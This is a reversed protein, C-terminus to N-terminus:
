PKNERPDHAHGAHWDEIFATLDADPQDPLAISLRVFEDGRRGGGLPAGQGKLRLKTGSSSHAPVRMEVTGTPTPVRIKGGRVAEVLSVPIDITLDGGDRTFRADPLVEMEILADGAAGTGHGPAGKGSLRLVKGDTMGAPISVDITSGGPMTIRKQGGRIAEALTIALRYHLDEGRRNARAQASRRLLESLFDDDQAFGSFGAGSGAGRGYGGFDADAFDRYYSREDWQPPRENGAEDLEGADYRRRKEPDGLLDYAGAVEKFREEAGTDGPNLDPHLEKALKRYAKRIDADSASSAVGLITYPDTM